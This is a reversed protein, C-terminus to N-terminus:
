FPWICARIFFHGMRFIRIVKIYLIIIVIFDFNHSIGFFTKLNLIPQFLLDVATLGQVPNRTHLCMVIPNINKFVPQYSDSYTINVLTNVKPNIRKFKKSTETDTSQLYFLAM